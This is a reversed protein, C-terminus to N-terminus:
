TGGQELAAGHLHEPSPGSGVTCLAAGMEDGSFGKAEANKWSFAWLSKPQGPQLARPNSMWLAM